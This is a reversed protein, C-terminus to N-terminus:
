GVEREIFEGVAPVLDGLFDVKMKEM